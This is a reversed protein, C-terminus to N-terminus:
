KRLNPQTGAVATITTSVSDVIYEPVSSKRSYWATGFATSKPSMPSAAAPLLTVPPCLKFAMCWLESMCSPGHEALQVGHM